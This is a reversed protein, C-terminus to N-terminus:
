HVVPNNNLQVKGSHKTTPLHLPHHCSSFCLHHLIQYFQRKNLHVIWLNYLKNMVQYLSYQQVHPTSLYISKKNNWQVSRLLRTLNYDEMEDSYLISWVLKKITPLFPICIHKESGLTKLCEKWSIYPM